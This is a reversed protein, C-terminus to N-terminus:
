GNTSPSPKPGARRNSGAQALLDIVEAKALGLDMALSNAVQKRKHRFGANVLAFFDAREAMPLRSDGLSTLVVVSSEVRPPPLFVSPAVHFAIRPRALLQAAVGLVSMQPPEASLREAVERQIMVTLSSPPEALELLRMLIATGVSYPLNAVVRFPSAVDIDISLADGEM